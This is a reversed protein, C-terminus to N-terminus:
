VDARFREGIMEESKAWLAKARESDVTYAMAGPSMPSIPEHIAESLHSDECYGGGVEEAEAVLGAWVSTAKGGPSLKTNSFRDERLLRCRM